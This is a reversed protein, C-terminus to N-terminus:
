HPRRHAASLFFCRFRGAARHFPISAWRRVNAFRGIQDSSAFNETGAAFFCNGSLQASRWAALPFGLRTAGSPRWEAGTRSFASRAGTAALSLSWDHPFYVIATGNITLIRAAQYWYWHQGFDLELGRFVTSEGTKWGRDLDFFAESKPIVANDHGIAGGATIAGLRHVRVASSAVFKDALIGGRQYTAVAISTAWVSNWHTALSAGSNQNAATYSLFDTENGVRLENKPEGRLSRLGSQAETSGPDLTLARRFEARSEARQGSDRLARARAARLDARKPDLQVARDLARLADAAKGERLYVGALGAWHDPDSAAVCLIAAYEQEAAPFNGSWGLIRARWARLDLDSPARGIEQELVRLASAWDHAQAYQRVQTQWNAQPDQQEACVRLPAIAFVALVLFLYPLPPTGCPGSAGGLCIKEVLM